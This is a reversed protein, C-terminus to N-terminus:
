GLCAEDFEDIVWYGRRALTGGRQGYFTETLGSRADLGFVQSLQWPEGSFVARCWTRDDGSLLASSRSCVPVLACAECPEAGEFPLFNHGHCQGLIRHYQTAPQSQRGRLARQIRAWTPGSYTLSYKTSTSGSAELVDVVVAFVEGTEPCVCLPGVLLGGTEVAPQVDGGQRSVREARERAARTFFVPYVRDEELVDFAEAGDRLVRLPVSSFRPAGRGEPGRIVGPALGSGGPALGSGGPALGYYYLEGSELTGDAVLQKACRAAVHELCERPFHRSVCSGPALERELDFGPYYRGIEPDDREVVRIRAEVDRLGTTTRGCRLDTEFWVEALADILDRSEVPEVAIVPGGRERHLQLSLPSAEPAAGLGLTPVATGPEAM